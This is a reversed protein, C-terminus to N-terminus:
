VKGPDPLCIASGGRVLLCLNPMDRFYELFVTAEGGPEVNVEPSSLGVVSSRVGLEATDVRNLYKYMLLDVENYVMNM